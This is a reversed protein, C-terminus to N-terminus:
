QPHECFPPVHEPSGSQQPPMLQWLPPHAGLAPAVVAFSAMAGPDPLQWCSPRPQLSGVVHQEPSHTSPLQPHLLPAHECSPSQQPPMLQWFPLQPADLWPAHPAMASAHSSLLGQQLPSVHEPPEHPPLSPCSADAPAPHAECPCSQEDSPQQSPRDHSLPEAVHTDAPSESAPGPQM